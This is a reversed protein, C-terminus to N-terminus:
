LKIDHISFDPVEPGQDCIIQLASHNKDASRALNTLGSQRQAKELVMRRLARRVDIPVTDLGTGGEHLSFDRSPFTDENEIFDMFIAIPAVHNFAEVINVLVINLKDHRSGSAEIM